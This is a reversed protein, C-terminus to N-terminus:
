GARRLANLIVPLAIQVAKPEDPLCILLSQGRVGVTPSTLLCGKCEEAIIGCLYTELAYVRSDAIRKIAQSSPAGDYVHAGGVFLVLKVGRQTMHFVMESLNEIDGSVRESTWEAVEQNLIYEIKQQVNTDTEVFLVTLNMALVGQKLSIM